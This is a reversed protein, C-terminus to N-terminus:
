ITWIGNRLVVRSPEEPRPPLKFDAFTYEPDFPFKLGFDGDATKFVEPLITRIERGAAAAFVDAASRFDKLEHVTKLTPPKLVIRGADNAALAEMPTMWASDTLEAQDHAAIQGEPARALFFRTNFRKTEFDPTIWHAYPVMRDLSFRLGEKQALDLLSMGGGNLAARYEKFRLATAPDRFDPGADPGSEALLIGSEEFTERIGNVYFGCAQSVALEPEQLLRPLLEFDGCSVYRHLEPDCDAPDLAGGPFVFAGAMFSQNSGRRMFFIEFAERKGDRILIVTASDRLGPITKM